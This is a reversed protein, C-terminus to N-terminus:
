LAAQVQFSIDKCRKPILSQRLSEAGRYCAYVTSYDSMKTIRYLKIGSPCLVITLGGPCVFARKKFHIIFANKVPSM